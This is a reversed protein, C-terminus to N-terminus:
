APILEVWCLAELFLVLILYYSLLIMEGWIFECIYFFLVYFTLRVNVSVFWGIDEAEAKYRPRNSGTTTITFRNLWETIITLNPVMCVWDMHYEQSDFIAPSMVFELIIGWFNTRSDYIDLSLACVAFGYASESARM